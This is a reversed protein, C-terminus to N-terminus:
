TPVVDMADDDAGNEADEEAANDPNTEVTANKTRRRSRKRAGRSMKKAVPPQYTANLAQSEPLAARSLTIKMYPTRQIPLYNKGEVVKRLAAQREVGPENPIRTGSGEARSSPADLCGIENYQHLSDDKFERKIIEVVSILRAVNTTSPEIKRKKASPDLLGSTERDPKHPLTHLVLPRTPNEKLFKLAFDVLLSIKGHSAIRMSHPSTDNYEHTSDM